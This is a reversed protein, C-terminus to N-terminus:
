ESSESESQSESEVGVEAEAEAEGSAQPKSKEDEKEIGPPDAPSEVETSPACGLATMGLAFVLFGALKM